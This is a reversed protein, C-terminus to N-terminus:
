SLYSVGREKVVRIFNNISRDYTSEIDKPFYCAPLQGMRRHYHLCECCLGARSCPYTCNCISKNEEINCERM